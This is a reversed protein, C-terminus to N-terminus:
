RETLDTYEPHRLLFATVFPCSASVKATTNQRIWDLAGTVLLTGLGHEQIQPDIETHTFRFENERTRYETFGLEAGERVLVFRHNEPEHVV